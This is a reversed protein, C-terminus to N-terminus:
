DGLSEFFMEIKGWEIDKKREEELNVSVVYKNPKAINRNIGFLELRISHIFQNDKMKLLCVNDFLAFM